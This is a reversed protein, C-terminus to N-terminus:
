EGAELRDMVKLVWDLESALAEATGPDKGESGLDSARDLHHHRYTQIEERLAAWRGPARGGTRLEALPDPRGHGCEPCPIIVATGTM